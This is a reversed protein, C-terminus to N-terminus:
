PKAGEEKQFTFEGKVVTARVETAAIDAAALARPDRALVTFSAWKGPALTGWDDEAFSATAAGTTFMALAEAFTLREEETPHSLAAAIGLLPALPTINSDSGGALTVGARLASRFRNTRRRREGLRAEYMRGPGGWLWEFAPQMCFIVGLSAARALEGDAVLEAHELRHRCDARPHEQAAAEYADLVQAVARDGIAHLAIQLGAAHATLVLATLDDDTFYLEGRTTPQDAYPEALAATRSGFSGDVLICGGFRPLGLERVTSVSLVQPFVVTEVPLRDRSRLLVRVDGAEPILGGELACLAVVGRSAAHAAADRYAAAQATEDLRALIKARALGNARGRLVGTPAGAADLEVGPWSPEVALYRWAAGNLVLSHSDVRAVAVPARPAAADLEAGTPLRGEALRSEDLGVYVTVDGGRGATERIDELVDSLRRAGGLDLERLALGTMLLHVHADWLGPFIAAEGFDVVPAGARELSRAEEGSAAAAVRGGRVALLTAEPGGPATLVTAAKFIKDVDV